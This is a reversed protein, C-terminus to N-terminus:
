EAYEEAAGGRRYSGYFSTKYQEMMREFQEGSLPEKGYEDLLLCPVPYKQM